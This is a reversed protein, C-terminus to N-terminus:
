RQITSRRSTARAPPEAAPAQPAGGFLSQFLGTQAVPAPARAARRTRSVPRKATTATSKKPVTPEIEEAAKAKPAPAPERDEVAEPSSKPPEARAVPLPAEEIESAVPPSPQDDADPAADEIASEDPPETAAIPTAPMDAQMSEPVSSPLEAVPDPREPGGNPSETAPDTSEAEAAPSETVADAPPEAAVLDPEAPWSEAAAKAEDDASQPEAVADPEPPELSVPVVTADPILATTEPEDPASNGSAAATGSVVEVDIAQPVPQRTAGPGPLTILMPLLAAVCVAHVAGAALVCLPLTISRRDTLTRSKLARERM